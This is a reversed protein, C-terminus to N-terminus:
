KQEQQEAQMIQVVKQWSPRSSIDEWWANLHKRSAFLEGKKAVNILNNTVPIHALDALSFLDGALYKHHTLQAEYVDLIKELKELQEKVVAENTPRGEFMQSFVCEFVIKWVCPNYNQSEVELWQNVLAKDRVTKGFLATGQGEYKDSIYRAIARSEYLTFDGDQFAPIQGFPQLKLYEPTKNAGTLLDIPVMQYDDVNKEALTTLVRTVNASYAKGYVKLSAMAQLKEELTLVVIKWACPNYNQSEVELWQNVLAKDRVTKGFLATGQGEYKDIIYRAIARSEYLTFDGDQFAPIQGFPQLKLYEPTKNGGTFLDIPVMQYDDVNKEALTTLVRTVNASYAKGYVKLSAM